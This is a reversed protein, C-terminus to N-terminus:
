SIMDQLDVMEASVDWLRKAVGIDYSEDSSTKPKSDAYYKGSIGAALFQIEARQVKLSGHRMSGHPWICLMKLSHLGVHTM